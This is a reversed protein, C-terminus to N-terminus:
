NDQQEGNNNEETIESELEQPPEVEEISWMKSDALILLWGECDEKTMIIAEDKNSVCIVRNSENYGLYLIERVGHRSQWPRKLIYKKLNIEEM